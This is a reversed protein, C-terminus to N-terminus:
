RPGLAIDVHHLEGTFTFPSEYDGVPSNLDVGIDFSERAFIRAVTRPLRLEGAPSGAVLLRLLGGKGIGGGDYDFTVALESRGAPVPVSSTLCSQEVRSLNYWFHLLGGRLFLSYGGIRGGMAVLVGEAGGEPITAQAAIRFSRNKVDPAAGELVGVTDPFFRFETRPGGGGLAQADLMRESGGPDLPLVNNKGAEVWFLDQLERLKDPREAALDRAQSFDGDLDYLEWRSAEIDLPTRKPIWPLVELAGAWWGRHYIGRNSLAEFYQTTRQGQAEAADFSYLLSVGDMPRQPVGNVSAPMALGAADLITAGIDVAHHFQSRLGGVDKIRRPWTVVLPNRVGGLHSAVRKIWQFPTDLAWAWGVPFHNYHNPGGLEELNALMHEVTEPVENFYSMGDVTGHPGGEGSAGNDGVSYVILTNEYEGSEKLVQVLRGIEHDTHATFGAFVEMMRAYLRRQDDSLSDWAPIQEPRPTLEADSPIVGLAKQRLFAEERYADWGADFQGKFRDIWDRPAHHPAHTAGPAFWLFFPKDPAVARTTRLWAIAKDAMETTFHYDRRPTDRLVPRTNEFLTPEWQSMAGGLFGFFYEFGRGTPWRDFPGAPGCEWNPTNHWKGLAATAYGNQRLVEAVSATSDPWIGNYGPYGTAMETVAGNGSLHANRGTLMAARTPTCLATTHYRNYRLGDTALEDLCPTPILGGFTGFQAFGVDDLLVVLINPAGEPARRVSPKGPRSDRTTRGIEGDFKPEPPPLAVSRTKGDGAM